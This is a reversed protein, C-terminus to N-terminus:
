GGCCGEEDGMEPHPFLPFLPLASSLAVQRRLSRANLPCMPASPIYLVNSLHKGLHKEEVGHIVQGACVRREAGRLEEVGEGDEVCSM